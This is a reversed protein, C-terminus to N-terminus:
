IIGIRARVQLWGFVTGTVDEPRNLQDCIGFLQRVQDRGAQTQSM